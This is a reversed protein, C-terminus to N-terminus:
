QNFISKIENHSEKVGVLCRAGSILHRSVSFKERKQRKREGKQKRWKETQAESTESKKKEQTESSEYLMEFM